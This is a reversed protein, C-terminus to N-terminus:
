ASLKKRKNRIWKIGFYVFEVLAGVGLYYIDYFNWTKNWIEMLGLWLWEAKTAMVPVLILSLLWNDWNHSLYKKISFHKDADDYEDKEMVFLVVTYILFGYAALVYINNFLEEM